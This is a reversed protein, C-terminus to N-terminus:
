QTFNTQKARKIDNRLNNWKNEIQKTYSARLCQFSFFIEKAKPQNTYIAIKEIKCTILSKFSFNEIENTANSIDNNTKWDNQKHM